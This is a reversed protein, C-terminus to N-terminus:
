TLPIRGKKLREVTNLVTEAILRTFLGVTQCFVILAWLFCSVNASTKSLTFMNARLDLQALRSSQERMEKRAQNSFKIRKELDFRVAEKAWATEALALEPTYSRGDQRSWSLKRPLLFGQDNHTKEIAQLGEGNVVARMISFDLNEIAEMRAWEAENSLKDREFDQLTQIYGGLGIRLQPATISIALGSALVIALGLRAWEIKRGAYGRVMFILMSCIIAVLAANTIFEPLFNAIGIIAVGSGAIIGPWGIPFVSHDLISTKAPVAKLAAARSGFALVAQREAERLEEGLEVYGAASEELHNRMEALAEQLVKADIERRISDSLEDLFKDIPGSM